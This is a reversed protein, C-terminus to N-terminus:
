VHARGIEHEAQATQVWTLVSDLVRNGLMVAGILAAPVLLISVNAWELGGGVAVGAADLVWKTLYVSVAPLLGQVVIVFVWSATWTASATWVLRLARSLHRATMRTTAWISEPPRTPQQM